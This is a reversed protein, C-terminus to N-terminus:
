ILAVALKGSLGLEVGPLAPGRPLRHAPAVGIVSAVALDDGVVVVIAAARAAAVEQMADVDVTALLGHAAGGAAIGVAGPGLDASAADSSTDSGGLRVGRCWRCWQDKRGPGRPRPM